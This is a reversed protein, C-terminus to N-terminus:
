PHQPDKFGHCKTVTYYVQYKGTCVMGECLPNICIECLCPMSTSASPLAVKVNEVATEVDIIGCRIDELKNMLSDFQRNDV